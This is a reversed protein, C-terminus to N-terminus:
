KENIIINQKIKEFYINSFIELQQNQKLSIRKELIKVIMNGNLKKLIM